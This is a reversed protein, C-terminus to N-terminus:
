FRVKSIYGIRVCGMPEWQLMQSGSEVSYRDSNAAGGLLFDKIPERSKKHGSDPHLLFRHWPLWAGVKIHPNNLAAVALGGNSGGGVLAAFPEKGFVVLLLFVVGMFALDDVRFDHQRGM